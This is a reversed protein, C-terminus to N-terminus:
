RLLPRIVGAGAPLRPSRSRGVRQVRFTCVVCWGGRAHMLIRIPMVSARVKWMDSWGQRAAQLRTRWEPLSQWLRGEEERLEDIQRLCDDRKETAAQLSALISEPTWGDEEEGGFAGGGLKSEESRHALGVTHALRELKVRMEEEALEQEHARRVLEGARTTWGDTLGYCVLQVGDWLRRLHSSAGWWLAVCPLPHQSPWWFGGYV